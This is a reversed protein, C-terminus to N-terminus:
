LGRDPHLSIPRATSIRSRLFQAVETREPVKLSDGHWYAESAPCELSLPSSLAFVSRRTRTIRVRVCARARRSALFDCSVIAICKKFALMRGHLVMVGLSSQPRWKSGGGLFVRQLVADLITFSSQQSHPSWSPNTGLATLLMHM